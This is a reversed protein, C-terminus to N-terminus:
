VEFIFSIIGYSWLCWTMGAMRTAVRGWGCILLQCVWTQRFLQFGKRGGFSVNYHSLSGGKLTRHHHAAPESLVQSKWWVAPTQWLFNLNKIQPMISTPSGQEWHFFCSSQLYKQSIATTKGVSSTIPPAVFKHQERITWLGQQTVQM